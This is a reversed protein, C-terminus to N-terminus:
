NPVLTDGQVTADAGTNPQGHTHTSLDVGIGTIEGTGVTTGSVTLNGVIETLPATITVKTPTDITIDGNEKLSIKQLADVNRWESNVDSYSQISVPMPNFGVLAFGDSSSFRRNVWPMPEGDIRLGAEDKNDFMWHDYGFQSFMILCTDGAKIPFTLSWGGGSPTHVPVDELLTRAITNDLSVSTSYVREVSIRVTATQTDPFYELIRGPMMISYDEIDM